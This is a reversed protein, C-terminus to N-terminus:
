KFKSKVLSRTIIDLIVGQFARTNIGFFTLLAVTPLGFVVVLMELSPMVGNYVYSHALMLGFGCSLVLIVVAILTAIKARARSAPSDDEMKKMLENRSEIARATTDLQKTLIRVKHEPSLKEIAQEVDKGTVNERDLDEGIAAEVVDLVLGGLPLEKLVSRGAVKLISGINM